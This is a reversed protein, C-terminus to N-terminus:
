PLICIGLKQEESPQPTTEKSKKRKMHCRNRKKNRIFPIAPMRDQRRYSVESKSDRPPPAHGSQLLARVIPVDDVDTSGM